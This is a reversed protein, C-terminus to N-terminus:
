PREGQALRRAYRSEPYDETFREVGREYRRTEGALRLAKLRMWAADDRLRNSDFDELFREYQTVAEDPRNLEELYIRGMEYRAQDAHESTYDGIFWSTEQFSTALVELVELAREWQAQTRHVQAKEWLADDWLVDLHKAELVQEYAVIAEAYHELEVHLKAVRMLYAGEVSKGSVDSRHELLAELATRAGGQARYHSTLLSVAHESAVWEGYSALLAHYMEVSKPQEGRAHHLRAARYLARAGYEDYIAESHIAAYAELAEQEREEDELMLALQYRIMRRSSEDPAHTLLQEYHGRAEDHKGQDQARTAAFYRESWVHVHRESSCAMQM